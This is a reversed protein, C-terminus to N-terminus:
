FLFEKSCDSCYELEEDTLGIKYKAINYERSLVTNSLMTNDACLSVKIGKEIWSKIPHDKETQIVDTHINSTICAEILINKELILDTAEKSHLVTTGHGIRQAQLVNIADIIEEPSRGEGAHVTRGLGYEKAKLFSTKYDKLSWEHFPAPGGALDIGVVKNKRSGIEVLQDIVDPNEGYLGCLILKSEGFLGESAADVIDELCGGKHLQPAFRLELNQVGDIWADECIERAVRKVDEPNQLVSLTIKFRSLADRLSMGKYFLVDRYDSPLIINNKKALDLLTSYRLSGDLHCHLENM